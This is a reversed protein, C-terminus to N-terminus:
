SRTSTGPDAQKPITGGMAVFRELARQLAMSKLREDDLQSSLERVEDRLKEVVPQEALAQQLVKLESELNARLAEEQSDREAIRQEFERTLAQYEATTRTIVGQAAKLQEVRHREDRARRSLEEEMTQLRKESARLVDTLRACEAVQRKLSADAEKLLTVLTVREAEGAEARQAADMESERLLALTEEYAEIVGNAEALQTALSQEPAQESTSTVLSDVATQQEATLPDFRVGFGKSEVRVVSGPLAVLKDAVALQVVVRTDQPLPRVSRVFIGGSSVDRLYSARYADPTAVRVEVRYTKHRAHQRRDQSSSSM